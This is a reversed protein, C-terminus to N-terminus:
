RAHNAAEALRTFLCLLRRRDGLIASEECSITKPFTSSLFSSSFLIKISFRISSSEERAGVHFFTCFIFSFYSYYLVLHSYIILYHVRLLLFLLRWTWYLVLARREADLRLPPHFYIFHPPITYSIYIYVNIIRESTM